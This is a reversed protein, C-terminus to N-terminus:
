RTKQPYIMHDCQMTFDWLIEFNKNEAVSKPEHEYWLREMNLGLKECFHLLVYRGVSDHRRKYEKQALTACESVIHSITENRTGCMRCIPSKGTKDINYKIYSTRISKEQASCILAETWGKLDSKRMWRWTNNKDKDEMDRAFQGHMRKAACENKRQEEKTKKFEKPEVTEEHTITRSKRVAVLLPEINNKVYWGLGNEESKVSNECGILRKGGNKRSVYLRAVDSTPHLEKNMAMFKRTKRDMEQLENKNWKRIGAGYRM